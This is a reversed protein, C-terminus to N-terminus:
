LEFGIEKGNAGISINAKENYEVCYNYKQM